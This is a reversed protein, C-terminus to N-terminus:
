TDIDDIKINKFSTNFSIKFFEEWNSNLPPPVTFTISFTKELLGIGINNDKFLDIVKNFDYPVILWINKLYNQNNNEAFFINITSWISKLKEDTLRDTNDITLILKKNNSVLEEDIERLFNRFRLNSPESEKITEDSNTELKEGSIWYFSKGILEWITLKSKDKNDKKYNIKFEKSFSKFFLILSILFLLYPLLKYFYTFNINNSINIYFEDKLYNLSDDYYGYLKGNIVQKKTENIFKIIVFGLVLFVYYLKVQPFHKTNKSIRKQSLQAEKDIWNDSNFSNINKKM